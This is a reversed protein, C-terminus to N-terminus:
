TEGSEQSTQTPAQQLAVAKNGPTQKRVALDIAIVDYWMEAGDRRGRCGGRLHGAGLCSDGADIASGHRCRLVQRARWLAYSVLRM